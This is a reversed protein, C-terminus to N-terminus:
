IFIMKSKIFEIKAYGQINNNKTLKTFGRREMECYIKKM